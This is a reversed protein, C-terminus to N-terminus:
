QRSICGVDLGTVFIMLGLILMLGVYSAIVQVRENPPKGVVGEWLLFVMHGGDLVPIPLFNIVALNASILCVFILLDPIGKDASAYAWQAIAVPGGMAKASVQRSGLKELMRFVLSLSNRTEDWGLVVAEGVGRARQYFGKPEFRFGRNPFFWDDAEYTQLEVSEGGALALEVRTGPLGDQLEYLIVPWIQKEDDLTVEVERQGPSNTIGRAQLDEESPPLLKVQTLVEGGQLGAADAPSGEIVRQVRRPVSYAIGLAPSSMNGVMLPEEYWDAERLTAGIEVPTDSGARTVGLSVSGDTRALRRLRDPLTMPDGAPEGNVTQIVDGPRIGAEEAPSDPQVAVVPGMEMVLGLRRMPRPPLEVTIRETRPGQSPDGAETEISREVTVPITEDPHLAEVAHYDRYDDIARGAAEVIRDGGKLKPDVLAPPTGPVFRIKRHLTTTNPGSVGITPALGVRDPVLKVTIPEEVGPRKVTMSVGDEIDGVSIAKKLGDFRRVEKGNIKLIDDGPRLNARWAAGGSGVGGVGCEVQFVGLGFAIVAAVFAFIVNMVVGASIIAMRRPVSKALYSRPDFLAQEAAAVDAESTSPTEKSSGDEAAADADAAGSKAAQEARAREMEERLRAPNDEQGLMKVYGGLPFIGIGYQTEGWTFKCLKAGFFDFGVYFKEVKVGCLKAVLFHGLEHVFIVMGLAITVLLVNYWFALEAWWPAAAAFILDIGM